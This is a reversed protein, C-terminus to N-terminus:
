SGATALPRRMKYTRHKINILVSVELLELFRDVVLVEFIQQFVCLGVRLAHRRLVQELLHQREEVNRTPLHRPAANLPISLDGLEHGLMPPVPWAQVKHVQRRVVHVVRTNHPKAEREDTVVLSWSLDAVVIAAAAAIIAAAAAAAAIAGEKASQAASRRGFTTLSKSM